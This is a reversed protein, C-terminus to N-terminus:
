ACVLVVSCAELSCARVMCLNEQTKFAYYLRVVYPCSTNALIDREAIVNDVQSQNLMEQKKLVKIAMVDGTSKKKGLYVCRDQRSCWLVLRGARPAASRWHREAWRVCLRRAHNAQHNRLRPYVAGEAGPACLHARLLRTHPGSCRVQISAEDCESLTDFSDKMKRVCAKKRTLLKSLSSLLQVRPNPKVFRTPRRKGMLMEVSDRQM